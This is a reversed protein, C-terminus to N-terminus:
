LPGMYANSPELYGKFPEMCCSLDWILIPLELRGKSPEMCRFLDLIAVPHNWPAILLNWPPLFTGHSNSAEMHCHYTGLGISGHDLQRM